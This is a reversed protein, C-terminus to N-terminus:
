NEEIQSKTTLYFKAQMEEGIKEIECHIYFGPYFKLRKCRSCRIASYKEGLRFRKLKHGFIKCIFRLLRGFRPLFEIRTRSQSPKFLGAQEAANRDFTGSFSIEFPEIETKPIEGMNWNDVKEIPYGWLENIDM